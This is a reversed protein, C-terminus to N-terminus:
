SAGRSPSAGRAPAPLPGPDLLAHAEELGFLLARVPAGEADDLRPPLGVFAYRGASADRLDLCIFVPVGARALAKHAPFDVSDAPDLSYYDFGVSRPRLGALIEAAEKSVSCYSASFHELGLLASNDTKLLVHVGEPPRAQLLDAAEIRSRGQLGLVVAPGVFRELALQGLRAGGPLFHAPADLHTGVHCGVSLHSATLPDGRGLDSVRRLLPAPDGPYLLTRDSLPLTLDLM